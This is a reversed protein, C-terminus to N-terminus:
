TIRHCAACVGTSALVDRGTPARRSRRTAGHRDAAQEQEQGRQEPAAVSGGSSSGVEWVNLQSGPDSALGGRATPAQSLEEALGALGSREGSSLGSRASSQALLQSQGDLAVVDSSGRHAPATTAAAAAAAACAAAATDQDLLLRYALKAQSPPAAGPAPPQAAAAHEASGEAADEDSDLPLHSSQM